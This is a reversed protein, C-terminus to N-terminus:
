QNKREPFEHNAQNTCENFQEGNTAVAEAVMNRIKASASVGETLCLKRFELWLHRNIGQVQCSTTQEMNMSGKFLHWIVYTKSHVHFMYIDICQIFQRMENM